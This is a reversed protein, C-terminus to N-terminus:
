VHDGKARYAAQEIAATLNSFDVPDGALNRLSRLTISHQSRSREDLDRTSVAWFQWQDLNLPDLTPKDTHALLAFVYVDAHRRAATEWKNTQPDWGLRKPVVFQITSLRSQDWTQLYASSKVEIRLGSGTCLDFSGWEERAQDTPVGLAKAVIYEAVIGRTTNSVLDSTSWGWFDLVDFGISRGDQHFSESGSMRAIKLPALSPEAKM